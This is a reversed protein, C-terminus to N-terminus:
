PRLAEVCKMFAECDPEALCQRAAALRSSTGNQLEKDCEELCGSRLEDFLDEPGPFGPPMPPMTEVACALVRDCLTECLPAEIVEADVPSADSPDVAADPAGADGAGAEPAPTPEPEPPPASSAVPADEPPTEVVPARGGQGELAARRAQRQARAQAREASGATPAAVRGNPDASCSAAVAAPVLCAAAVVAARALSRTAVLRGVM